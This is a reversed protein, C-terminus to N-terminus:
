IKSEKIAKLVRERTLPLDYVRVGIANYVANGLAAAVTAMVMESFGKAGYPGEELPTPALISIVNNGGPIEAASPIKYNVLDPNVLRGREYRLAEYLATGIGMGIGGEIQQECIKPNIPQGMDLANAARLVKVEGTELNVAVEVAFAGYSYDAFKEFHGTKLDLIPPASLTCEGRGVIEGVGPVYGLPSFLDGIPINTSPLSKCFIKGDSIDLMEPPVDMKSSAMRFIQEKADQCARRVANGTSTTTRSAYNGWDFPTFATDGRHLTVKSIPVGFEEATVQAVMTSAGQGMEAAGYFADVYGDSRVKVQSTATYGRGILEGGIAIGKGKVWPGEPGTKEDRMIWKAAADLCEKVGISQMVEGMASVEGERHINRKRVEIPDIGLKDAIIEMQQEAAWLMEPTEVGRMTTAPPLNTYVALSDVKVNPIRYTAALASIATRPIFAMQEAGFAGGDLILRAELAVLTGDKKAGHKVYAVVTPRRGSMTLDEARTYEFRVPKGFKMAALAVPLDQFRGLKGGFGGGCYPGIVRVKSAPLDFFRAVESRLLFLGQRSSRITLTGDTEVWADIIHTELPCHQPSECFYRNEVILDSQRFGEEVDGTRLIAMTQLNPVDPDLM